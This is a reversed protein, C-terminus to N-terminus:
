GECHPEVRQLLLDGLMSVYEVALYDNIRGIWDPEVCAPIEHARQRLVLRRAGDDRPQKRRSCVIHFSESREARYRERRAGIAGRAAHGQEVGGVIILRGGCHLSEDGGRAEVRHFCTAELGGAANLSWTTVELLTAQPPQDVGVLRAGGDCGPHDRLMLTKACADTRTAGRRRPWLGLRM